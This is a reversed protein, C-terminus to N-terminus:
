GHNVEAVNGYVVLQDATITRWAATRATRDNYVFILKEIKQNIEDLSTGKLQSAFKKTQTLTREALLRKAATQQSSVIRIGLHAAFKGFDQNAFVPSKDIVFNKPVGHFTKESNELMALQMFAMVSEINFQPVYMAWMAGSYEDTVSFLACSTIGKNTSLTTRPVYAFIHTHNPYYRPKTTATTTM